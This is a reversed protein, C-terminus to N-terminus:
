RRGGSRARRPFRALRACPRFRGPPRQEGGSRFGAAPRPRQRARPLGTRSVARSPLKGEAPVFVRRIGDARGGGSGSHYLRDAPHRAPRPGSAPRSGARAPRRHQQPRRPSRSGAGGPPASPSQALGASRATHCGPRGGARLRDSDRGPNPQWSHDDEVLLARPFPNM